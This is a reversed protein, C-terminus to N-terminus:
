RHYKIALMLQQGSELCAMCLSFPVLGKGSISIDIEWQAREYWNDSMLHFQDTSFVTGVAVITVMACVGCWAWLNCRTRLRISDDM